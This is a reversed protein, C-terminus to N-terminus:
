GQGLSQISAEGALSFLFQTRLTPTKDRFHNVQIHVWFLSPFFIPIGQSKRIEWQQVEYFVWGLCSIKFKGQM